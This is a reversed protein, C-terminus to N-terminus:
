RTIQHDPAQTIQLAPISRPLQAASRSKSFALVAVSVAVGTVVGAVVDSAYHYGDYVAGACLLVVVPTLAAGLRPRYRWAFVLAVVGAAVHSSPFANGHVGGYKQILLVAWHFPGGALAPAPASALTHAPGETPLLLFVVYCLMYAAVSATMVQSFPTQRKWDATQRCHAAYFFGGVIMLLVFYSFYGIELLETLWFTAHQRFWITPPVPFLSSELALIYSDQWRSVFVLSLRSVEEFCVIFALLPYWDHLFRVVRDRGAGWALLGIIILVAGHVCLYSTWNALHDRRLLVAVSLLLFWAYYLRDVTNLM